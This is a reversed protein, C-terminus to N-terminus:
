EQEQFSNMMEESTTETYGEPITMDFLTKDKIKKNFETATMTMVMGNANVEMALPFGPIHNSLMTQGEKNAVIEETFWFMNEGGNEDTIVAKKCTYGLISKTEDTIVVDMEPMEGENAKEIDEYTSRIATNGMMGGMLTLSEKKDSDSIVTTTMLAGMAMETRSKNGKFYIQMTSGQMMSIAMAMEPNDSTMDISYKIHGESIQASLSFATLVATLLGFITKKM